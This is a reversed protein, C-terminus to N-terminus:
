PARPLNALITILLTLAGAIPIALIRYWRTM